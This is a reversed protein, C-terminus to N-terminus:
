EEPTPAFDLLVVGPNPTPSNGYGGGGYGEGETNDEREPGQSNILVGGGGAGFYGTAKGGEGPSLTFHQLTINAVDVGSGLGANGYNGDEGDSGDSGGDGGIQYGEGGGGSYGPLIYDLGFDLVWKQISMSIRASRVQVGTAIREM